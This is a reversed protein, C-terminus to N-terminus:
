VWQVVLMSVPRQISTGTFVVVHSCACVVLMSSTGCMFGLQRSQRLLCPTGKTTVGVEGVAAAELAAWPGLGLLAQPPGRVHLAPIRRATRVPRPLLKAIACLQVSQSQVCRRMALYPPACYDSTPAAMRPACTLRSGCQGSASASCKLNANRHHYGTHTSSSINRVTRVVRPQRQLRGAAPHQPRELGASARTHFISM